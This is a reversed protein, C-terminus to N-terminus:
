RRLSRRRHRRLTAAGRRLRRRFGPTTPGAQRRLSGSSHGRRTVHRDSAAHAVLRGLKEFPRPDHRDGLRRPKGRLRGGTERRDLRPKPAQERGAGVEADGVPEVPCHRADEEHRRRGAGGALERPLELTALDRLRVDRNKGGSGGRVGHSSRGDFPTVPDGLAGIDGFGADDIGVIWGPPFRHGDGPRETLHRWAPPKDCKSGDGSPHM